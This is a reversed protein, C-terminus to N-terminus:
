SATAQVREVFRGIRRLAEELQRYSTAYCARVHGEGSPGFAGGPVVAVHEEELLRQAFTESDLGTSTIKPFAYFAGRPEFTEHEVWYRADGILTAVEQQILWADVGLNRPTQRYTGAWRWVDGFM